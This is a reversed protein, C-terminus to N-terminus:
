LVAASGAGIKKTEDDGQFFKSVTIGAHGAHDSVRLQDHMQQDLAGQRVLLVAVLALSAALAIPVIMQRFHRRKGNRLMAQMAAPIPEEVIPDFAARLARDAQELSALYDKADARSDVLKRAARRGVADLEGDHYAALLIRQEDNM